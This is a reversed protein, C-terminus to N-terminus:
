ITEQLFGQVLEMLQLLQVHGIVEQILLHWHVHDTLVVLLKAQAIVPELIVVRLRAEQVLQEVMPRLLTIAVEQRREVVVHKTVHAGDVGDAM